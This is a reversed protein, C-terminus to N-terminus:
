RAIFPLQSSVGTVEFLRRVQVSGDTLRLRNGNQSSHAVHRLLVHLGSSDMFDVRDLDVVVTALDQAEAAVLQQDLLPATAIDLDGEIVLTLVRDRQVIDINM